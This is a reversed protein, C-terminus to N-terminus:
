YFVEAFTKANDFCLAMFQQHDHDHVSLDKKLFCLLPVRYYWYMQLLPVNMKEINITLFYNVIYM